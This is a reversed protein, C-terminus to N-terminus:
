IVAMEVFDSQFGKEPNWFLANLNIQPIFKLRNLQCNTQCIIVFVWAKGSIYKHGSKPFDVVKDHM